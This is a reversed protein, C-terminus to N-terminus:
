MGYIWKLFLVDDLYKHIAIRHFDAVFDRINVNFYLCYKQVFSQESMQSWKEVKWHLLIHKHM